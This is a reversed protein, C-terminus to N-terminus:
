DADRSHRSAGAIIRATRLDKSEAAAERRSAAVVSLMVLGSQAFLGHCVACNDRYIQADALSPLNDACIPVSKPMERDIRSRLASNALRKEFPM